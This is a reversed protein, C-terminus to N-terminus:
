TVPDIVQTVSHKLGEVHWNAWLRTKGNGGEDPEIALWNRAAILYRGRAGVPLMTGTIGYDIQEQNAGISELFHVALVPPAPHVVGTSILQYIKGAGDSGHRPLKSEIVCAGAVHVDGSVLTVKCSQAKAFDLLRMILRKRESRHPLSRWHDRLDDELEQQGVMVDLAKEAAQLDLYGVPISSMLLLHKHAPVKDLWAYIADWSVPSIVRTQQAQPTTLDPARESRLDPVLLALEGLGTFGLHFGDATGPIACPHTDASPKLHPHTQILQQQFIRFYRKATAFLGQFVPSSHLIEDYSGWGDIIDHDDWMMVTPIAGFVKAMEPQKWCELYLRTFFKDLDAEIVKTYAAKQRDAFPKAFWAKMSPVSSRMDDSYVQDGGMLLLHYPEGQHAGWMHEWRENNRDVKEMEKPDSFGNCSVYAIRPSQGKAPVVFNAQAGDVSVTYSTAVAQDQAAKFDIRWVRSNPNLLPIDAIALPTDATVDKPVKVTPPPEGLPSVVLASVNYVNNNIGRFQLIPGILLSM